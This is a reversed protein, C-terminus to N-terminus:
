LCVNFLLSSNGKFLWDGLILYYAKLDGWTTLWFSCLCENILVGLWFLEWRHSEVEIIFSVIFSQKWKKLRTGSPNATIDGLLKCTCKQLVAM